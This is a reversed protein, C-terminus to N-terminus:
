SFHPFRPDAAESHHISSSTSSLGSRSSALSPTSSIDIHKQRTRNREQILQEAEAEYDRTPDIPEPEETFYGLEEFFYYCPNSQVIHNDKDIRSEEPTLPLIQFLNEQVECDDMWTPLEEEEEYEFYPADEEDPTLSLF